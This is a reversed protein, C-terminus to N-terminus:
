PAVQESLWQAMFALAPVDRDAPALTSDAMGGHGGAQDHDAGALTHGGDPSVYTQAGPLVTTLATVDAETVALDQGGRIILVPVEVGRAEAVPDLAYVARLFAADGNFAAEVEPPLTSTDPPHGRELLTAVAERLTAALEEGRAPDSSTAVMEGAIVDVLPRGPTSILVVASVRPDAAAIRLAILGGRDYGVLFLPAGAVERREALFDVGARADAVLDDYTAPAGDSPVSTGTGRQDYRLAAMGSGVVAQSIEEYLPDVPAGPASLVTNRDITGGGPIILVSPVPDGGAGAPLTLTAGLGLGGPGDLTIPRDVATVLLDTGSSATEGSDRSSLYTAGGVLALVAGVVVAPRAWNRRTQGTGGAHRPASAKVGTCRRCKVGVSTPVLCETCMAKACVACAAVKPRRKHVACTAAGSAATTESM